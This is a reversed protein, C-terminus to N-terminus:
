LSFLDIQQWESRPLEVVAKEDYEQINKFWHLPFRGKPKTLAADLYFYCDTACAYCNDIAAIFYTGLPTSDAYGQKRWILEAKYVTGTQLIPLNSTKIPEPPWVEHDKVIEFYHKQYAGFHSGKRPFRSAYYANGGDPFLYYKKGKKLNSSNTEKICLGQM